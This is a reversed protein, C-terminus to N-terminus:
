KRPAGPFRYLTGSEGELRLALSDHATAIELWGDGILRLSKAPEPLKVRHEEGDSLRIVLSGPTAYILRDPLLALAPCGAIFSPRRSVVSGGALDVSALWLRNRRCIALTALRQGAYAIARVDGGIQTPDLTTRINSAAGIRWLEAPEALFVLADRGDADFAFHANGAPAQSARVIGADASLLLLQNATKVLGASGSFAWNVVDGLSKPEVADGLIFNGTVGYARRIQQQADTVLALLPPALQAAASAAGLMALLIIRYMM